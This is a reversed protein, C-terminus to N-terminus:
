RSMWATARKRGLRKWAERWRGLAEDGAAFQMQALRGATSSVSPTADAYMQLWQGAVTADQLEGLIDQVASARRVFHTASSGAVPIVIEAAYRARKTLIRVRHLSSPHPEAGLENVARRVKSFARASYHILSKASRDSTSSFHPERAASYLDKLLRDHGPDRLVSTLRERAVDGDTQLRDLIVMAAPHDDPGLTAVQDHLRAQLVDTDRVDGLADALGKAEKRLSQSWDDDFMVEFEKLITRFRRMGVRAQHVHEPEESDVRLGADHSTVRYVADSLASRLLSRSSGTTM